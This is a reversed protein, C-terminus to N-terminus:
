RLNLKAAERLLSHFLLNHESKMGIFDLVKDCQRVFEMVEKSSGSNLAELRLERTRTLIFYTTYSRPM